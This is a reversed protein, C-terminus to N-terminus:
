KTVHMFRYIIECLIATRIFDFLEDDEQLCRKPLTKDRRYKLLEECAILDICLDKLGLKTESCEIGVIM